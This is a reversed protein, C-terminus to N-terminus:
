SIEPGLVLVFKPLRGVRLVPNVICDSCHIFESAFYTQCLVQLVCLEVVMVVVVRGGGNPVINGSAGECIALARFRSQNRNTFVMFLHCPVERQLSIATCESALAWEPTGTHITREASTRPGTRVDLLLSLHGVTSLLTTARYSVSWDCSVDAFQGCVAASTKLHLSKHHTVSTVSRRVGWDKHDLLWEEQGSRNIFLKM